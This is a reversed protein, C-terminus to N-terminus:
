LIQGGVLHATKQVTDYIFAMSLGAGDPRVDHIERRQRGPGAEDLVWHIQTVPQIVIFPTGKVLMARDELRQPVRPAEPHEMSWSWASDPADPPMPFPRAAIIIGAGGAAYGLPPGQNLWDLNHGPWGSFGEPTKVSALKLMKPNSIKTIEFVLADLRAFRTYEGLRMQQQQAKVVSAWDNLSAILITPTLM